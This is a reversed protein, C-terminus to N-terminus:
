PASASRTFVLAVPPANKSDGQEPTLTNNDPSVSLAMVTNSTPSSAAGSGLTLLVKGELDTWKGSSTGAGPGTTKMTFTMDSKLDLDIESAALQKKVTDAKAAPVKALSANGAATLQPHGVYHGVLKNQSAKSCGSAGVALVIALPALIRLIRSM